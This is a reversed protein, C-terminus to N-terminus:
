KLAAWAHLDDPQVRGLKRQLVEGAAGLVVTFPLAGSINGLNRSLETGGLAAIGIPFSLPTHQLFANVRDAKDVALALVQWGKAANEKFFADILPLEEVCPPCWTAWFNILLPKGRFERLLMESGDPRPWHMDWMGAVPEPARPAARGRWLATALGTGVAIGAGLATAAGLGLVRRRGVPLPQKAAEPTQIDTM